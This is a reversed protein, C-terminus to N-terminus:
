STRFAPPLETRLHQTDQRSAGRTGRKIDHQTLPDEAREAAVPVRTQRIVSRTIAM